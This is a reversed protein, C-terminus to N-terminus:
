EQYGLYEELLESTLLTSEIFLHGEMLHLILSITNQVICGWVRRAAEGETDQEM